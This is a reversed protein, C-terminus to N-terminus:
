DPNNRMKLHIALGSSTKPLHVKDIHIGNGRIDELVMMDFADDPL